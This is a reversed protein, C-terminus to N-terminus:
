SDRVESLAVEVTKTEGKTWFKVKVKEGPRKNNLVQNLALPTDTTVEDVALLVDWTKLGAKAAAGDPVVQSIIIGSKPPMAGVIQNMQDRADDFQLIGIYRPNYNVGLGASTAYGQKAIQGVVSKVRSVPIAFGIGISGAEQQGYGPMGAIASNIGVLHGEADCLAGGSNGPNIAADTQIADTLNGGQVALSRGLSSVVGASLTQDFGLPNGVAIVWQGVELASSDGIEIPTLGAADVKLVALDFKTDTGLVKASFSKKNSLRVQVEAAGNVVHNNTVILGDASLIVGSGQGTEQVTNSNDSFFDNVRDFRDVSVVSPLVKKAALRFDVPGSTAQFAAPIATPPSGLVYHPVSAKSLWHDAQLAVFVGAACAIGIAIISSTRM